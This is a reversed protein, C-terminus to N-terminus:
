FKHFSQLGTIGSRRTHTSMPVSLLSLVGFSVHQVQVVPLLSIIMFILSSM